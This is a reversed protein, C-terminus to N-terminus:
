ARRWPRLGAMSENLQRAIPKEAQVAELEIDNPTNPLGSGQLYTPGAAETPNTISGDAEHYTGDDFCYFLETDVVKQIAGLMKRHRCTSKHGQPCECGSPNVLYSSEPNLGDDFKTIRFDPGETKLNYLIM